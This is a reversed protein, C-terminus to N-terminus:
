LPSVPQGQETDLHDHLASKTSVIPAVIALAISQAWVSNIALSISYWGNANTQNMPALTSATPLVGHPIGMM